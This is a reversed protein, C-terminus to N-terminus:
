RCVADPPELNTERTMNPARRRVIADGAMRLPRFQGRQVIRRATGLTSQAMELISLQLWNKLLAFGRLRPAPLGLVRMTFVRGGIAGRKRILNVQSALAKDVNAPELVVCGADRAGQLLARGRPTRVLVLSSGQEDNGIPRYWPDGCSIDADEGSGDPTLHVSLPRFRQLFGWSEPYSALLTFDREGRKRVAFGGPWGLGRYRIEAVQDRAVGLTRLLEQTGRTAPSGACFFSLAVGVNRRLAPRMRSANRLATVETPQGVFVCPAPASEIIALGDCASAPAYRSGTASLLEDRTRSLRTTNRLVDAADGAVHVVGHMREREVCYLSLATLLGGSSGKNRIEPDAAHGEWIELAPGYATKIEAILGDQELLNRHDNVLAPCVELCDACGGCDENAVLPRIGEDAVDALEIKQEPCIYSCAGCGLCLRWEVISRVTNFASRGM